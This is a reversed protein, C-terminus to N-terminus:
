RWRELGRFEYTGRMGTSTLSQVVKSRWLGGFQACSPAPGSSPSISTYAHIGILRLRMNCAPARREHREHLRDVVRPTFEAPESSVAIFARKLVSPFGRPSASVM